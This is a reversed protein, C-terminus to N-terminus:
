TGIAARGRVGAVLAPGQDPGRDLGRGRNRGPGDGSLPVDELEKSRVSGIM